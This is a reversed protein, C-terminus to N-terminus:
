GIHRTNLKTPSRTLNPKPHLRFPRHREPLIPPAARQHEREVGRQWPSHPDCFYVPMGTAITFKAHAAMEDGEWHGPVARDAVEPPRKSINIMGSIRSQLNAVNGAYSLKDLVTVRVDRTGPVGETLLTRVYHSGIFGAGGTVLLRM